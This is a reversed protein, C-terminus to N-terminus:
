SAAAMHKAKERKLAPYRYQGMSSMLVISVVLFVEFVWLMPVYSHKLQFCWGMLMMGAANAFNVFMMIIGSLAGFARIGFYRSVIFAVLDFEAGISLGVTVVALTPWWGTAGSILIGVGIMPLALFFVAIYIAFIKDLLYGAIVRGIILMMGGISLATVAAKVSIGRDTLMPVIHVLVGNTVSLLLFISITLAWYKGKRVAESLTIGPLLPNDAKVGAKILERDKRMEEPERFFLAVPIFALVFIAVGLGLYGTRWGYHEMLIRAYQPVLITGLGVGALGIGLALGRQEDFRASIMKSYGAPLQVTAFVGQMAFLVMMLMVSATILSIAATSLAFLVIVPLMVVRMGNRDIMKGLVPAAFATLVNALGLASSFVGRSFHLEQGLPKMYVGTAFVMIAAGGAIEAVFTTFVVWWRNPLAREAM